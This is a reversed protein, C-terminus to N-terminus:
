GLKKSKDVIKYGIGKVKEILEAELKKRLKFLLVRLSNMDIYEDWM